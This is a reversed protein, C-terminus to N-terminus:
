PHERGCTAREPQEGALIDKEPLWCPSEAHRDLHYACALLEVSKIQAAEEYLLKAPVMRRLAQSLHCPIMLPELHRPGRDGFQGADNTKLWAAVATTDATVPM